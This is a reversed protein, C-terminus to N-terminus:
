RTVLVTPSAPMGQWVMPTDLLDVGAITSDAPVQIVWTRFSDSSIPDTTSAAPTGSAQNFPRFGNQLLVHRIVGNTYRVRVTYDCGGNRCYWYYQSTNPVISMRDSAQTPDIYHLLNGTYALPPYIQSVGPTGAKSYTMAIAYVPTNTTIPLGQNLGWIGGSTTATSVRVWIKSLTNWRKYGSTFNADPFIKGGSYVANGKSDLSTTGEFYRQMMATSYDSFTDFRYSPDQDGAGSQMPDQKVCRGSSDIVHTAACNKYNSATSPMFTPLFQQRKSDYGWVSGSLSGSQYPYKGQGYADGQHPLGFAHGQEHIFVGAFATDGTGVNGGGLGGGPGQDVGKTNRMLLPAYYQVPASGEGNADRLGGLLSLVSSMVDYGDHQEDKYHVVYAAGNNRPGIVISSWQILGIDHTATHLTSVPWKAWMEDIATQPIALSSSPYNAGFLGFPLVRLTMDVDAGINPSKKAGVTYNDARVDLSLGPQVWAAPILASYRNQAYLPGHAETGFLASPASLSVTGLLTTGLWGEIVPHVADSYPLQVLALADRRAIVHFSETANALTWQLGEAPLVHTQAMQLSVMDLPIATTSSSSTSSGGTSSTTSSSSTSSGTSSTSSFGASSGTSITTSSSSSSNGSNTISSSGTSSGTSGTSSSSDIVSGASNTVSSNNTAGSDVSTESGGGGCGVVSLVLTGLMLQRICNQLTM